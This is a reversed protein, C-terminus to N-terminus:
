AALALKAMVAPTENQAEARLRDLARQVEDRAAAEEAALQEWQAREDAERRASAEADLRASAAEEAERRARDAASETTALQARLRAIERTLDATADKPPQPPSFGGATFNRDPGYSRVFWVGLERALKLGTLAQQPTGLNEHIASNGFRRLFHFVDGVQRPLKVEQQLVRLTEDFNARRDLVLGNRAAISKAMHEAFQRLKGLATPADQHFAWEALAGLRALDSDFDQLFAFNRSHLRVAPGM